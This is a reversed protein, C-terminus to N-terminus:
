KEVEVLIPLQFPTTFEFEPVFVDLGFDFPIKGYRVSNDHERRGVCRKMTM